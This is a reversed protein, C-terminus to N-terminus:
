RQRGRNRSGASSITRSAATFPRASAITVNLLASKPRTGAANPMSTTPGPSTRLLPQHTISRSTVTCRGCESVSAASRIARSPPVVSSANTADATASFSEASFAAVNRASRPRRASRSVKSRKMFRDFPRGGAGSSRRSSQRVVRSRVDVGYRVGPSTTGEVPVSPSAREREPLRTPLSIGGVISIQTSRSRKGQIWRRARKM